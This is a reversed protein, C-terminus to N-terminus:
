LKSRSPHYHNQNSCIQQEPQPVLPLLFNTLRHSYCSSWMGPFTDKAERSLHLSDNEVSSVVLVSLDNEWYAAAFGVKVINMWGDFPDAPIQIPNSVLQWLDFISTLIPKIRETKSVQGPTQTRVCDVPKRTCLSPLQVLKTASEEVRTTLSNIGESRMPLPNCNAIEEVM